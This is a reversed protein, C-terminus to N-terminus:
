AEGAVLLLGGQPMGLGPDEAGAASAGPEAGPSGSHFQPVLLLLEVAAGGEQRHPRQVPVTM